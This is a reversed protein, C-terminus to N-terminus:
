VKLAKYNSEVIEFMTAVVQVVNNWIMRKKEINHKLNNGLAKFVAMM